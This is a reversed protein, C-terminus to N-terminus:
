DDDSDDAFLTTGRQDALRQMMLLDGFGAPEDLDKEEYGLDQIAKELDTDTVVHAARKPPSVVPQHRSAKRLKSLDPLDDGDADLDAETAAQRRAQEALATQVANNVAAKILQDLPIVDPAENTTSAKDASVASAASKSMVRELQEVRDLLSGEYQQGLLGEELADVRVPLPHSAATKSLGTHSELQKVRDSLSKPMDDPEDDMDPMGDAGMDEDGDDPEDDMDPMGGGDMPEDGAPDESTGAATQLIQLGQKFVATLQQVGEDSLAM